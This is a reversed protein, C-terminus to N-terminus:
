TEYKFPGMKTLECIDPLCKKSFFPLILIGYFGWKNANEVLVFHHFREVNGVPPSAGDARYFGLNMLVEVGIFEFEETTVVIELVM